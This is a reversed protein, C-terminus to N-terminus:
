KNQLNYYKKAYHEAGKLTKTKKLCNNFIVAFSESEPIYYIVSSDYFSKIPILTEKQSKYKKIEM